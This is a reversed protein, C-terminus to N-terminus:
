FVLRISHQLDAGHCVYSSWLPKLSSLGQPISFDPDALLDTGAPDINKTYYLSCGSETEMVSNPVPHYWNSYDIPSYGLYGGDQLGRCEATSLAGPDYAVTVNSISDGLLGSYYGICDARASLDQYVVYVSPSTFTYGDSVLTYPTEPNQTAAM